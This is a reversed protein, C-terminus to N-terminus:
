KKNFGGLIIDWISKKNEDEEKEAFMQYSPSSKLMTVIEQRGLRDISPSLYKYTYLFEIITGIGGEVGGAILHEHFAKYLAITKIQDQTLHALPEYNSGEGLMLDMKQFRLIEPPLFPRAGSQNQTQPNPLM